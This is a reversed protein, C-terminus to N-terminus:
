RWEWASSPLLKTSWQPVQPGLAAAAATAAHQAAGAAGAAGSSQIVSYKLAEIDSIGDFCISECINKLIKFVMNNNEPNNSFCRKIKCLVNEMHSFM